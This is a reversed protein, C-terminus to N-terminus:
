KSLFPIFFFSVEFNHSSLFFGTACVNTSGDIHPTSSYFFLISVSVYSHILLLTLNSTHSTTTCNKQRKRGRREMDLLDSYTYLVYVVM